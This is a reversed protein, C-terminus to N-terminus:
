FIKSIKENNQELILIVRICRLFISATVVLLM